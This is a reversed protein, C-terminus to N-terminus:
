VKLATLIGGPFEQSIQEDVHVSFAKPSISIALSQSNINKQSLASIHQGGNAFFLATSKPVKSLHDKTDFTSGRKSKDRKM